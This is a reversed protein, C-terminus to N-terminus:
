YRMHAYNNGTVKGLVVDTMFDRFKGDHQIENKLSNLDRIRSGDIHFVVDGMNVNSDNKTVTSYSPSQVSPPVLDTVRSLEPLRDIVDQFMETQKLNLIAEGRKAVVWGDDGTEGPVTQLAGVLGGESYGINELADKTKKKWVSDKVNKTDVGLMGALNRANDLSLIKNTKSHIYTNLPDDHVAMLESGQPTKANGDIFRTVTFLRENSNTEKIPTLHKTWGLQKALEEAITNRLGGYGKAHYGGDKKLSDVVNSPTWGTIDVGLLKALELIKSDDLIRGTNEYLMQSLGDDSLRSSWVTGNKDAGDVKQGILSIMKTITTLLETNTKNTGDDWTHSIDPDTINPTSNDIDKYDDPKYNNVNKVAEAVDNAFNNDKLWEFMGNLISSIGEVGGSVDSLSGLIKASEESIASYNGTVAAYIGEAIASTASAQDAITSYDGALTSADLADSLVIGWQSAIEDLTNNVVSASSPMAQIAKNVLTEMDALQRDIFDEFEEAMNDLIEEQDSIYKDYETDELDQEAEKLQVTLKQMKARAEETMNGELAKMQKKISAIDATKDEIKRDYDHLDKEAQLAKKYKDILGSMADKQKEYGEDCLEKIADMEEYCGTIYDRQQGTLERRREYYDNFAMSSGPATYEKDLQEIEKQILDKLAIGNSIKEAHLALTSTGAETIISTDNDFMDKYSLIKEYFDAESNIDDIVGKGLDELERRSERIKQTNEAISVNTDQIAEDVSYIMDRMEYWQDSGVQVNKFNEELTAKEEQLMTIYEKGERVLGEYLSATVFGNKAEALSVQNNIYNSKRDLEDLKHQYEGSINDFQAKASDNAKDQIEARLRAMGAIDGNLQAIQYLYKYEKITSELAEREFWNRAKLSTAAQAHTSALGASKNHEDAYNQLIQTNLGLIEQQKEIQLQKKLATNGELGAIKIQQAYSKKAYKIQNKISAEKDKATKASEAETSYLSVYGDYEDQLNEHQQIETDRIAKKKEAKLQAVKVSDKELKALKIQAAYSEKIWKVSKGLYKNKEKASGHNEAQANLKDIRADADDAINQQKQQKLERKQTKTEIKSKKAEKYKDYYDQYEGIQKATKEGYEKILEKHTGKIKGNRVSKKLEPDLKLSKAKANYKKAAKGFANILKATQKIQIDLNGNMTQKKINSKQTRAEQKNKKADQYKNYYEQYKEIKGAKTGGYKEVLGKHSDKINGSRIEKKLSSSLKVKKAKKNYEKATEGYEKISQTLKKVQGEFKSNKVRVAFLNELKSKTTDIKDQLVDLYRAIWDIKTKTEKVGPSKSSGKSGSNSNKYGSGSPSISVSTLGQLQALISDFENTAAVKLKKNDQNIQQGKKILESASMRGDLFQNIDNNAPNVVNNASYKANAYAQLAKASLGLGKVFAILNNLDAKTDLANGNAWLKKLTYYQLAKTTGDLAGQENVLQVIEEGTMNTLNLTAVWAEAKKRALADMVVQGANAVGMEELMSVAADRNSDNLKELFFNSNVYAAALKDAANQCEDMSSSGDGLVNVFQQYAKKCKRVEEPMGALTDAGIGNGATEKESLNEKKSNLIDSISAIGERMSAMMSTFDVDKLKYVEKVAEGATLGTQELLTNYGEVSKLTKSTLTGANALGLISSTVDKLKDDTTNKLAKWAKTFSVVPNEKEATDKTEEIAAQLEEFTMNGTNKIKYAIELDGPAIKKINEEGFLSVLKQYNEDQVLGLQQLLVVLSELSLGYEGAIHKLIGFAEIQKDTATNVNFQDFDGASFGDLTELLNYVRDKLNGADTEFDINFRWEGVAQQLEPYLKEFYSAVDYDGNDVATDMAESLAEAYSGAASKISSGDGGLVAEDYIDKLSELKEYAEDYTNTIDDSLIKDFLISQNRINSDSEYIEKINNSIGSLSEEFEPSVEYGAITEKIRSIKDQLEDVSGGLKFTGDTDAMSLSKSLLKDLKENGTTKLSYEQDNWNGLVKDLKSGPLEMRGDKGMLFIKEFAWPITQTVFDLLHDDASKKNFEAKTDYWESKKLNELAGAQGNIASTVARVSSEEKGYKEIMEGQISMLQKRADTVDAISSGSDNIVQQLESIRSKYSDIDSSTSSFANGLGSAKEHLENTRNAMDSIVSIVGQVALGLGMSIASNLLITKIRLADTNVGAAQLHAKYGSLSAPADASCTKLYEKLQANNKVVDEGFNNIDTQGARLYNNYKEIANSADAFHKKQQKIQTFNIGMFNGQLDVRKSEPNIVQTIGYDKNLATMGSNIATLVVPITGLTDILTETGQILGDLFSVGGKIAQKDALSSVLSTWSNQLANLRGELSNASEAAEAESSGIGESYDKLMKKYDNWGSLLAALQNAHYKQGINTTIESKLPDSKELENYTKALDNLIAIPTRLKEVGNVTETMSANAKELTGVIKDSSINQLNVILSKIGTGTITGAEKTRASITGIMASLEEISIGANAAVSGAKETATAMTELSVSHKNTINNQGDLVASLKEINGKYNYAANTALLYDQATRATVDGAAQVKLALGGLAKGEAGYFGSRNMEQVARLYDSSLKGYKSADKFSSRSLEELQQKTSDSVKSIETIISDNIKITELSKRFNNAAITAIGFLSGVKTIGSAFSKIKDTTSKAAYGTASVESKFLQFSDTAYRLSNRDNIASIKERLKDAENLLAKSERIKSNKTLYATLQNNLKDKKLGIDLLVPNDQVVKKADAVTKQVKLKLKGESVGLEIDKFSIANLAQNIESKLNKQDFRAKLKVQKLQTELQKIIQNLENKTTGKALTATLRLTRVSKELSKIDSNIQKKSKAKDLGALLKLM